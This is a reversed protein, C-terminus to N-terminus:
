NFGGAHLSKGVSPVESPALRAQLPWVSELQGPCLTDCGYLM